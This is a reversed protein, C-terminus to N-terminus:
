QFFDLDGSDDPIGVLVWVLKSFPLRLEGVEDLGHLPSVCEFHKEAGFQIANEVYVRGRGRVQGVARAEELEPNM